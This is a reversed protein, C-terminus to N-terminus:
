APPAALKRLLEGLLRYETRSLHPFAATEAEVLASTADRALQAGAATLGLVQSRRDAESAARTVLGRKELGALRATINPATVSLTEALRVQSIGPSQSILSLITYEVPRVDLPVGAARFFVERARISAQALQYGLVDELRPPATARTNTPCNAPM